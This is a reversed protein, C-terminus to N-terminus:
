INKEFIHPCCNIARLFIKGITYLMGRNFNMEGKNEFPKHNPTLNEIQSVGKRKIM